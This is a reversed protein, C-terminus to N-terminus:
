AGISSCRPRLLAATNKKPPGIDECERDLAAQNEWVDDISNWPVSEVDLEDIRLEM